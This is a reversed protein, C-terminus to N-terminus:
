ALVFWTNRICSMETIDVGVCSERELDVLRNGYLRGTCKVGRVGCELKGASERITRVYAQGM